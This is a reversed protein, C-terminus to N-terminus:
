GFSPVIIESLYEDLLAVDQFTRLIRLGTIQSINIEHFLEIYFSGIAYLFIQNNGKTREALLVGYKILMRMQEIEPFGTFEKLTM